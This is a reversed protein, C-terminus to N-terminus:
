VDLNSQPLYSSLSVIPGGTLLAVIANGMIPIRVGNDRHVVSQSRNHHHILAIQRLESSKGITQQDGLPIRFDKMKRIRVGQFETMM